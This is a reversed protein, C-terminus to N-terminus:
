PNLVIKGLFERSELLREAERAESLPFRHSIVPTLRGRAVHDLATAINDKSYGNSGKIVLERVWIFRMDNDTQYGATAGCTLLTGGPRLCAPLTDM